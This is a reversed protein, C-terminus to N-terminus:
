CGNKRKKRRQWKRMLRWVAVKCFYTPLRFLNNVCNTKWSLRDPLGFDALSLSRYYFSYGIRSTIRLENSVNCGHVVEMWYPREFIDVTPLLKRAITHGYYEITHFDKDTREALTLFHNHPYRMKMPLKWAVFYQMGYNLSYLIEQPNGTFYRQLTAIADRHLADDNDLNTTLVYEDEATLCEAVTRRIFRSRRIEDSCLFDAAEAETFFFPRFQPIEREYGHIRERFVEPTDADFLCLWIFNKTSQQRVSPLCYMEFLEFRRELWDSTHTPASHKDKAWLKLNFMTIVFHKFRIDMFQFKVSQSEGWGKTLLLSLVSRLLFVYKSFIGCGYIM